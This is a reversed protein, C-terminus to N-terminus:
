ERKKAPMHGEYEKDNIDAIERNVVSDAVEYKEPPPAVESEVDVTGHCSWGRRQLLAVAESKSEIVAEPDGRFRALEPVYRRGGRFSDTIIGPVGLPSRLDPRKKLNPM